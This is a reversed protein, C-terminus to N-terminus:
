TYYLMKLFLFYYLILSNLYFSINKKLSYFDESYNLLLLLRNLLNLLYYLGDYLLLLYIRLALGNHIRIIFMLIVFYLLIIKKKKLHLM